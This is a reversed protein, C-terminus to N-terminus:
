WFTNSSFSKKRDLSNWRVAGKQDNKSFFLPFNTSKAIKRYFFFDKIPFLRWFIKEKPSVLLLSLPGTLHFQRSLSILILKNKIKMGSTTKKTRYVVFSFVYFLANSHKTTQVIKYSNKNSRLLQWPWLTSYNGLGNQEKSCCFSHM